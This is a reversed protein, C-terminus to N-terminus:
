GGAPAPDNGDGPMLPRGSSKLDALATANRDRVQRMLKRFGPLDRLPEILPDPTDVNTETLYYECVWGAAVEREVVAM